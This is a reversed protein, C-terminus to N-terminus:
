IKKSIKKLSSYIAWTDADELADSPQIETYVVADQHKQIVQKGGRDGQLELLEKKFVNSFLCPGRPIKESCPIVIKNKEGKECIQDIHKAKLLPQDAPLFLYYDGTAYQVGIRISASIGEQAYQNFIIKDANGICVKAVDGSRVVVIIETIYSAEQLIELTHGLLTKGEFPLLLKNRGEMRKSFGAAMIIASVKKAKM